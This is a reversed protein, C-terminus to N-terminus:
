PVPDAVATRAPPATRTMDHIVFDAAPAPTALALALAALSLAAFLLFDRM